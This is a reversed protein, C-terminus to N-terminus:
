STIINIIYLIMYLLMFLSLSNLYVMYKYRELFRQGNKLWLKNISNYGYSIGYYQSIYGNKFYKKKLYKIHNNKHFMKSFLVIPKLNSLSPQELSSAQFARYQFARHQFARHQFVRYQFIKYQFPKYLSFNTNYYLISIHSNPINFFYINKINGNKDYCIYSNKYNIVVKSKKKYRYISTFNM